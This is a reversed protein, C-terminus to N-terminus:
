SAVRLAARSTLSQLFGAERDIFGGEHNALRSLRDIVPRTFVRMLWDCAPAPVVWPADWAGRERM